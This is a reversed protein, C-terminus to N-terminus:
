RGDSGGFWSDSVLSGMGLGICLGALFMIAIYALFFAVKVLAWIIWLLVKIVKWVKAGHQKMIIFKVRRRYRKMRARFDKRRERFEREAERELKERGNIVADLHMKKVWFPDSITGAVQGKKPGSTYFYVATGEPWEYQQLATTAGGLAEDKKDDIKKAVHVLANHVEEFKKM